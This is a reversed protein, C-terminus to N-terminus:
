MKVIIRASRLKSDLDLEVVTNKSSKQIAETINYGIFVIKAIKSSNSELVVNYSGCLTIPEDKKTKFVWVGQQHYNKTLKEWLEQHTKETKEDKVLLHLHNREAIEFIEYGLLDYFNENARQLDGNIDFEAVLAVTHLANLLMETESNFPVLSKAFSDDEAFFNFEENRNNKDFEKEENYENLERELQQFIIKNRVPILRERKINDGLAM